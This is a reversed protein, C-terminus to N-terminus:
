PRPPAGPVHPHRGRGLARRRRRRAPARPPRLDREGGHRGLAARPLARALADGRQGARDALSAIACSRWASSTTSRSRTSAVRSRRRVPSRARAPRAERRRAVRRPRADRPVLAARRGDGSGAIHPTISPLVHDGSLLVGHEPDYLCLHDLTHGPTHIALWTRGALQVPAGHKVRRTPDPPAFLLRMARIALRKRSRRCRTSAAVGRRRAAGRCRSGSTSPPSRTSRRRRRPARAAGRAVPRRLPRGRRDRGARPARRRGRLPHAGKRDLSWTTFAKHTVLEAGAEKKIRGAGGFHDPHSHTVVVTHIDKVAYGATKLRAKLAKWSKPGPARPRRRRARPRRPPRVHERPRPRADLDAAADAPRRARGRHGRRLGTGTGAEAAQASARLRGASQRRRDRGSAVGEGAAEKRRSNTVALAVSLERRFSPLAVDYGPALKPWPRAAEMLAAAAVCLDDEHRRAVVQMGVPMGDVLGAPISFGPQGTMNFPATFTASLIM